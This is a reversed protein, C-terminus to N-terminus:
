RGGEAEGILKRLRRGASKDGFAGGLAISIARLDNLAERAWVAPMASVFLAFLKWPIYGDSTLEGRYHLMEAGYTAM